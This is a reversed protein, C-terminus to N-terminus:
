PPKGVKLSRGRQRAAEEGVKSAAAIRRKLGEVAARANSERRTAEGVTLIDQLVDELTFPNLSVIHPDNGM